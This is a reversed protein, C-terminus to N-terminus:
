SHDNSQNPYSLSQYSVTTVHRIHSARTASRRNAKSRDIGTITTVLREYFGIILAITGGSVGPVTDAAGMCAGKLYVALWGRAGASDTM